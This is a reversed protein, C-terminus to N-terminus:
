VLQVGGATVEDTNGADFWVAAVDGPDLKGNTGTEIDQTIVTPSLGMRMLWGKLIAPNDQIKMGPTSSTGYGVVAWGTSLLDGGLLGRALLANSMAEKDSSSFGLMQAAIIMTSAFGRLTVPSISAITPKPLQKLTEHLVKTILGAAIEPGNNAVLVEYCDWLAGEMLMGANHVEEQSHYERFASRVYGPAEFNAGYPWGMGDPYVYSVTNKAASFSPFNGCDPYNSDYVPCKHVGRRADYNPVFTGLAWRSFVKPDFPASVLPSFFMLGMFDSIAENLAGSEDYWFQNLSQTASYNGTTTAHQLEHITVLADDAYSANPLSPSDGLCVKDTVQGNSDIYRVYYANDDKVCHAVIKVPKRRELYGTEDLKYRYEDGFYYSMAEQFKSNDHSYIFQNQTDYAGFGENCTLGNRIDVYLGELVGKGTLRSLSVLNRFDDLRLSVPTLDSMKSSIMPDPLFAMASGASGTMIQLSSPACNINVPETINVKEKSCGAVFLILVGSLYGLRM